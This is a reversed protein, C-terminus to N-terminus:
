QVTDNAAALTQRFGSFMVASDTRNRLTLHVTTGAPARLMPGPVQPAKGPETLVFARVVPDEVGEPQYAGEVVDLALTLTGKVLRGAPVRNQNPTALMANAAPRPLARRPPPAVLADQLLPSAALLVAHLALHLMTGEESRNTLEISPAGSRNDVAAGAIRRRARDFRGPGDGM